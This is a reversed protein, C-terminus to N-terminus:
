ALIIIKKEFIKKLSSIDNYFFPKISNKFSNSVGRTKLGPLLQKDLNKSNSMNTALYWDHWGHYGCFAINNKNTFARAIRIAVMCAEGGSKCFKAMGSWKHISLLEKALDVEETANLTCMSGSKLGHILAKNVDDNSYGLVCATVGMGAFDYYVKNNLDWVKCGKAKKYYTPWHGPLFLESRKSLLQNGGPIIKKAKDLLKQGKNM